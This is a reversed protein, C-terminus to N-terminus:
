ETYMYNSVMIIYNYSASITIYIYMQLIEASFM